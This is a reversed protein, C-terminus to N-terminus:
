SPRWTSGKYPLQKLYGTGLINRKDGQFRGYLEGLDTTLSQAANAESRSRRRQRARSKGQIEASTQLAREVARKTKRREDSPTQKRRRRKFPEVERSGASLPPAQM